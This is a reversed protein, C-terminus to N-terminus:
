GALTFPVEGPLTREAARIDGGIGNRYNNPIAFSSAGAVVTDDPLYLLHCASCNTFGLAVGDNTPVWRLGNITGDPLPGTGRSAMAQQDRAIAIVQSDFTKLVVSDLFVREGAAIWDAETELESPEIL